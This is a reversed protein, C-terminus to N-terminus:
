ELYGLADLRRRDESTLNSPPTHQASLSRALTAMRRQHAARITPNEKAVNRQELPDEILDILHHKGGSRGAFSKWRGRRYTRWRLESLFLEDSDLEQPIDIRLGALTTIMEFIDQTRVLRSTDEFRAPSVILPIRLVEEFSPNGRHSAGGKTFHTEGLREGHDSTFVIVADDLLGEGEMGELLEGVARDVLEVEPPYLHYERVEKRRYPPHERGYDHVDMYHVYLFLKDRTRREVAEIAFANVRMWPNNHPLQVWEDFGREFGAPRLLLANSM